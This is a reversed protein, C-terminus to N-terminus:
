ATATALKAMSDSGRSQQAPARYLSFINIVLTLASFQFLLHEAGEWAGINPYFDYIVVSVPSLNHFLVGKGLYVIESMKAM